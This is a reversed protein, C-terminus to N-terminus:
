LLKLIEVHGLVHRKCCYKKLGVEEMSINYINNLEKNQTMLFHEKKINLDQNLVWEKEIINKSAKYKKENVLKKYHDYKSAIVNGCTFCRIPIIM